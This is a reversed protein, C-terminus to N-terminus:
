YRHVLGHRGTLLYGELLGECMHESLMSDIVRGSIKLYEDNELQKEIWQRDTVKFVEHLRNSLAEDPGFIRFNDKNLKVVDRLYAGLLRM